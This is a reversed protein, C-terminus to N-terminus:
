ELSQLRRAALRAAETDPYVKILKQLVERAQSTDGQEGYLYGLKLLADPLRDSQPYRLGFNIFTEKATEFDRNLYHSEGMWYQADSALNSAPYDSLFRQFGTIADAYRGERFEGLAADFDGRETRTAASASPVAIAPSQSVAPEPAATKPSLMPAATTPPTAVGVPPSIASGSEARDRQFQELQHRQMELEGRMQRVEAELQEVRDLLELTLEYDPPRQANGLHPYVLGGLAVVLLWFLQSRSTM